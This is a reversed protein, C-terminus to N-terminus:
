MKDCAMQEEPSLKLDNAKKKRRAYVFSNSTM